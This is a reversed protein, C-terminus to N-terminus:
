LFAPVPLTWCSIDHVKEGADDETVATLLHVDRRVRRLVDAVAAPVFDRERVEFRHEVPLTAFLLSSARKRAQSTLHSLRDEARPNLQHVSGAGECGREAAM